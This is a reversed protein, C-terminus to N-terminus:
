PNATSKPSGPEKHEVNVSALSAFDGISISKGIWLCDRVVTSVSSGSEKTKESTIVQANSPPNVADTDQNGPIGTYREPISKSEKVTVGDITVQDITLKLDWFSIAFFAFFLFIFFTKLLYLFKIKVLSPFVM